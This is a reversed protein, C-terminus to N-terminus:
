TKLVNFFPYLLQTEKRQKRGERDTQNKSSLQLILNVPTFTNMIKLIMTLAFKLLFSFFFLDVIDFSKPTVLPKNHLM